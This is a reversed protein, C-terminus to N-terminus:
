VVTALAKRPSMGALDPVLQRVKIGAMIVRGIDCGDDPTFVELLSSQLFEQMQLYHRGALAKLSRKWELNRPSTRPCSGSPSSSLM